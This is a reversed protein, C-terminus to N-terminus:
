QGMPWASRCVLTTLIKGPPPGLSFIHWLPGNPTSGGVAERSSDRQHVKEGALRSHTNGEDQGASKRYRISPSIQSPLNEESMATALFETSISGEAESGSGKADKSLPMGCSQCYPGKPKFM